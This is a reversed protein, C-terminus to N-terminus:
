SIADPGIRGLHSGDGRAEDVLAQFTVEIVTQEDVKFPIEVNEVSVAKWIFIDQTRDSDARNRPHLRLEVARQSLLFGAQSGFGLKDDAAGNSMLLIRQQVGVPM